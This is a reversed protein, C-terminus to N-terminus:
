PSKRTMYFEADNTHDITMKWSNGVRINHTSWHGTEKRKTGNKMVQDVKWLGYAFAQDGFRKASIVTASHNIEKTSGHWKLFNRKIAELGSIPEVASGNVVANNAYLSLSGALDKSNAYLSYKDCIERQYTEKFDEKPISSCNALFMLPLLYIIKKM